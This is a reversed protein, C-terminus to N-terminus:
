RASAATSRSTRRRPTAARTKPLRGDRAADRRVARRPEAGAGQGRPARRLGRGQAGLRRATAIAQLGAVGAGVIFVRAATLTGAATMLMPFMRPLHNAALLVGKYGAITAMSSLADMSQARTIRPMLEMSFATVGAQALAASPTRSASRIPSASSRGPRAAAAGARGPRVRVQLIIDATSFVADRSASRRAPRSTPPRRFDPRSRRRGARRRRRPGSKKLAAAASPILAVRHEGPWTERPVGVRMPSLRASSLKLWDAIAAVDRSSRSRLRAIARPSRDRSCSDQSRRRPHPRGRGAAVKKRARALEALRRGRGAPRESRSRGPRDADAAEGEAHGGGSRLDAREQVVAHGGAPADRRARGGLGHRQDVAAQIKKQLDIRAQREAPPLKLGDLVRQQQELILDAGPSGGADLTVVGDIEKDRAAAILAVAGGDGHGAVVIRRKDVDDRKALWRM